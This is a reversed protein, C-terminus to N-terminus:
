ADPLERLFRYTGNLPRGVSTMIKIPGSGQKPNITTTVDISWEYPNTVGFVARVNPPFTVKLKVNAVDHQEDYLYDGDYKVGAEDSGFVRGEQFILAGLGRNSGYGFEIGYM